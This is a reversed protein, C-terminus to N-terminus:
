ASQREGASTSSSARGRSARDPLGAGRRYTLVGVLLGLLTSVAFLRSPWAGMRVGPTLGEKLEVQEVLAASGLRDATAVVEGDPSIVGSVGNTSAVALWRGSEIARLRTIAFQQDVQDTFIYSANSTQVVMLEAGERQQAYLGDDFGIDFCIADAVAVGAVELPESRDGALMDRPIRALQSFDELGLAEVVGRGPIYEGFAVPHRKTYREGPGTEPDWVIGQNYVHDPGGDVLGGVLVPVGIAAVAREIGENVEFSAFPDRATSNEPWIVLDPQPVRGAGVDDALGETAVVHNETLGVPDYLVDNGAGPVGGQVVAVTSTGSTPLRWPLWTPVSAVLALAVAAGLAVARRRLGAAVVAAALLCGLLALVFSLGASGLYAIAPALPTDVAAFSLRGWPMGSWPFETRLGEGAVWAAAVWLPWAPLRLLVVVVPALAAYFAGELGALLLWAVTGISDVLWWIHALFFALGFGAGPLLAARARLGRVALVYAAVAVPLLAPWAVPEFALSLLLGSLVALILRGPM